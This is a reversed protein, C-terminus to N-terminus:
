ETYFENYIKEINGNLLRGNNVNEIFYDQFTKGTVPYNDEKMMTYLVPALVHMGGDLEKWKKRADVYTIFKETIFHDLAKVCNEEILGDLSTYGSSRDRNEFADILFQEKKLIEVASLFEDNKWDFPPHMMEHIATNFVIKYPWAADTLFRTGTIKIGHPQSYYLMYITITDSSLETGLHEEVVKIVDHDGFESRMSSIKEEVVPLINERWYEPFGIEKLFPLIIKLESLAPTFIEWSEDSYYPTQMFRSKLEDEKYLWDIMDDISEEEYVSFHLCLYASIIRGNEDKLKRKLESLATAAEPTLKDKFKEYEAQYYKLYYPDGTLTNLLCLVDFKFSPKINWNTVTQSNAKTSLLSVFILIFAILSKM